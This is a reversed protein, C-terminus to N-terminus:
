ALPRITYKRFFGKPKYMMKHQRLNEIGLDMEINLSTVNNETARKALEHHLYHTIHPTEYNVKMHHIVYYEKGQPQHYFVVGHLTNDIYIALNKMELTSAHQLTRKLAKHESHDPDNNASNKEEWAVISQFLQEQIEIQTLDLAKLEVNDGVNRIFHNVKKRLRQYDHGELKAWEASDLLYENYDLEETIDYRQAHELEDVVFQPVHVLRVAKNTQKLYAFITEISADVQTRGILSLGAQDPDFPLQYDIVLNDHLLSISLEENLNWWLQLTAFSIDSYPPFPNTAANYPGKLELSLPTFEPFTPFM